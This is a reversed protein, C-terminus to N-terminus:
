HHDSQTGPTFPVGRLGEGSQATRLTQFTEGGPSTASLRDTIAVLKDQDTGQDGSGSV